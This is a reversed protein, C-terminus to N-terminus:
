GKHSRRYNVPSEGFRKRFLATFHSSNTFGVRKIIDQIKDNTSTIEHAAVDLRTETIVTALSSGTLQKFKRGLYNASFSLKLAIEEVSLNEDMYNENIITMCKSVLPTNSIKNNHSLHSVIDFYLTDAIDFIEDAFQSQELTIFCSGVDFIILSNLKSELHEVASYMSIILHYLIERVQSPTMKKTIEKLALINDAYEASSEIINLKITDCLEKAKLFEEHSSIRIDKMSLVSNTGRIFSYESIQVATKYSQRIDKITVPLGIFYSTDMDIYKNLSSMCESSAKICIEEFNESSEKVVIYELVDDEESSLLIGVGHNSFVETCINNVGYKILEFDEQSYTNKLTEANDIKILVVSALQADPHEKNILKLLWSLHEDSNGTLYSHLNNKPEAMHPKTHSALLKISFKRWLSFVRTLTLLSLLICIYTYIYNRNSFGDKTIVSTPTLIAYYLDFPISYTYVALSQVGNFDINNYLPGTHKLKSTDGSNLHSFIDFSTDGSIIKGDADAIILEGQLDYSIDLYDRSIETFNEKTITLDEPSNPNKYITYLYTTPIASTSATHYFTTKGTEKYQNICDFIIDHSPSVVGGFSKNTNADCMFANDAKYIYINEVTESISLYKRLKKSIEFTNSMRNRDEILTMIEPDAMINTTLIAVSNRRNNDSAQQVRMSESARTFHNKITQDYSVYYAAVIQCILLVAILLMPTYESYKSKNLKKMKKLSAFLNM